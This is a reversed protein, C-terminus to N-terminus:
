QITGVAEEASLLLIVREIQRWRCFNIANGLDRYHDARTAAEFGADIGFRDILDAACDVTGWKKGGACRWDDDTGFCRIRAFPPGKDDGGRKGLGKGPNQTGSRSSQHM